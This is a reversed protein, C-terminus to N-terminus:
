SIAVTDVSWPCEIFGKKDFNWVKPSPCVFKPANPTGTNEAGIEVFFGLYTNIQSENSGYYYIWQFPFQCIAARDLTTTFYNEFDYKHKNNIKKKNELFFWNM